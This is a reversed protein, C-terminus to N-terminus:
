CSFVVRGRSAAEAEADRARAEFVTAGNLTVKRLTDRAGTLCYATEFACGLAASAALRVNRVVIEVGSASQLVQVSEEARREGEAREPLPRAKRAQLHAEADALASGTSFASVPGAAAQLPSRETSRAGHEIGSAASAGAVGPRAAVPAALGQGLALPTGARPPDGLGRSIAREAGAHALAAAGAEAGAPVVRAADFVQRWMEDLARGDQGLRTTAPAGGRQGGDRWPGAAIQMADTTM